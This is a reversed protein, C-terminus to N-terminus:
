WGGHRLQTIQEAMELLAEPMEPGTIAIDLWAPRNQLVELVDAETVLGLKIALGLEDLVVLGYDGSAIADKTFNWLQDFALQEEPELHPTDICREIACRVWKLHSGLFMINDPGQQIGGKLLQVVLVPTGQGAVRMAQAIVTTFFSRHPNVFLHLAGRVIPTPSRVPSVAVELQSIM